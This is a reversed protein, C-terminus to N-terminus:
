KTEHLISGVDAAERIVNRGKLLGMLAITKYFSSSQNDIWSLIPREDGFQAQQYAAMWIAMHKERANANILNIARVAGDFDGFRARITAIGQLLSPLDSTYTTAIKFAEDLSGLKAHALSIDAFSELVDTLRNDNKQDKKFQIAIQLARMLTEKAAARVGEKDQREAIAMLIVIKHKSDHIRPLLSASQRWDKRKAFAVAIETLVREKSTNDEILDITRLARQLNGINAQAVAVRGSLFSRLPEEERQILAMAKEITATAGSIDGQKAQIQAVGDPFQASWGAFATLKATPDSISDVLRLAEQVEGKQAQALAISVMLVDDYEKTLIKEKLALAEKKRNNEVLQTSVACVILDGAIKVNPEGLHQLIDAVHLADEYLGLDIMALAHNQYEIVIQTEGPHKPEALLKMASQFTIRSAKRDGYVAQLVALLRLVQVKEFNNDIKKVLTDIQIFIKRDEPSIKTKGESDAKHALINKRSRPTRNERDSNANGFPIQHQRHKDDERSLRQALLPCSIISLILLLTVFCFAHGSCQLMYVSERNSLQHTLM